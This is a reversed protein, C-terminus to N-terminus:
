EGISKQIERLVLPLNDLVQDNSFRLLTIGRLALYKTREMDHESKDIREHIRGDIEIAVSKERCFFDLVFQGVPHQRRFKVGAMRRNRLSNWLIKESFTPHKRFERANQISAPFSHLRKKM